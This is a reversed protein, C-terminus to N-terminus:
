VLDGYLYILMKENNSIIAGLVAQEAETSHPTTHALSKFKDPNEM